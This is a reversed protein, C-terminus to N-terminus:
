WATGHRCPEHSQKGLVRGHAPVIAYLLSVEHAWPGRYGDSWPVSSGLARARSRGKDAIKGPAAQTELALLLLDNGLSLSRRRSQAGISSSM